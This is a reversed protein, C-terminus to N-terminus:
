HTQASSSTSGTDTGGCVSKLARLFGDLDLPKPLVEDDAENELRRLAVREPTTLRPTHPRQVDGCSFLCL